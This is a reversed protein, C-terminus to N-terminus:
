RDTVRDLLEMAALVTGREDDTLREHLARALWEERAARTSDILERGRPSITLLQRRGDDPDPRRTVLGREELVATSAAVSQPRIGEAAALDSATRPGERELRSLLSTQTLTLEGAQHSERLRRRLRGVVVRVEHAARVASASLERTETM